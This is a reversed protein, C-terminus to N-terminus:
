FISIFRHSHIYHCSSIHGKPKKRQEQNGILSLNVTYITSIQKYLLYIITLCRFRSEWCAEGSGTILALSMFLIHRRYNIEVPPNPAYSVTGVTFLQPVHWLTQFASLISCKRHVRAVDELVEARANCSESRASTAFFYIKENNQFVKKWGKKTRGM